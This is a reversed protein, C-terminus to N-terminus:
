PLLYAHKTHKEERIIEINKKIFYYSSVCFLAFKLM